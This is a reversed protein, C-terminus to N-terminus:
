IATIAAALGVVRAEDCTVVYDVPPASLAHDFKSIERRGSGLETSSMARTVTKSRIQRKEVGLSDPLISPLIERSAHASRAM